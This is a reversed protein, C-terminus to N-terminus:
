GFLWHKLKQFFSLKPKTETKPLSLDNIHVTSGGSAHPIPEPAREAPHDEEGKEDIELIGEEMEQLKRLLRRVINVNVVLGRQTIRIDQIGEKTKYPWVQVQYTTLGRNSPYQVMVKYIVPVAKRTPKHKIIRDTRMWIRDLIYYIRLKSKFITPQWKPIEQKIPEQNM